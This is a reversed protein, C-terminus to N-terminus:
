QTRVCRGGKVLFQLAAEAYTKMDPLILPEAESDSRDSGLWEGVLESRRVEHFKTEAAFM